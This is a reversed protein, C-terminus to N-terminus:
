DGDAEIIEATLSLAQILSEYYLRQLEKVSAYLQEMKPDVTTTTIAEELPTDFAALLALAKDIQVRIQSVVDEAGNESAFSGFNAHSHEGMIERHTELIAKIAELSLRSKAYELRSPDPDDIYKLAIGAPEGIRWEKLKYASDILTNVMANSAEALDATFKTDNRYFDAIAAAKTELYDLVVHLAQIRRKDNAQMLLLLEDLSANKGFLLYELATISKSSNKFLATEIEGTKNLAADIDAAIDVNGTHYYDFYQPIDIMASEYEAAIYGAEVSKWESIITLFGNHLEEIDERTLDHESADLKGRMALIGEVLTDAHRQFVETQLSALAQSQSASPNGGILGTGDHANDGGCGALLLSLTVIVTKAIKEIM